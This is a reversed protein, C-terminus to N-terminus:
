LQRVQRDYVIMVKTVEGYQEFLKRLTKEETYLSMGFVGITANPAVV